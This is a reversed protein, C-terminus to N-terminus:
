ESIAKGYSEAQAALGDVADRLSSYETTGLDVHSIISGSCRGGDIDNVSAIVAGYLCDYLVYDCDSKNWFEFKGDPAIEILWYRRGRYSLTNEEIDPLTYRSM